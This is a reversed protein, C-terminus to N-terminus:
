RAQPRKVEVSLKVRGAPGFDLELPVQDGAKLAQKPKMLMLHKDGPKLALSGGPAITLKPVEVMRMRGDEEIITHMEVSAFLPSSVGVLTLAQKGQNTITMYGGLARAGPPAERVWQGAVAVPVAASASVPKTPKAPASAFAPAALSGALVASALVRILM